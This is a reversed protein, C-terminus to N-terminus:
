PLNLKTLDSLSRILEAPESESASLSRIEDAPGDVKPVVKKAHKARYHRKLHYSQGFERGCEECSFPRVGTHTQRHRELKYPTKFTKGCDGCPYPTAWIRIRESDYSVDDASHQAEQEIHTM